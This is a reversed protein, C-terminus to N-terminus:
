EAPAAAKAAKAAARRATARETRRAAKAEARAKESQERASSTATTRGRKPRSRKKGGRELGKYVGSKLFISHVTESPQAGNQIWRRAAEVDLKLRLEPRPSAPDYLGLNELTRGDRPAGKDAVSIRYCPANKRGTRKMRIVVSM